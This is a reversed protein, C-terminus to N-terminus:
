SSFCIFLLNYSFQSNSAVIAFSPFIKDNFKLYVRSFIDPSRIKRNPNNTFATVDLHIPYNYM